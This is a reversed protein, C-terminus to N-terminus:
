GVTYDERQTPSVFLRKIALLFKDTGVSLVAFVSLAIPILIYIGPFLSLIFAVLSLILVGPVPNFRKMKKPIRAKIVNGGLGDVVALIAEGDLLFRVLYLPYHIQSIEGSIREVEFYNIRFGQPKLSSALVGWAKELAMQPDGVSDFVMWKESVLEEEFFHLKLVSSKTSIGFSGLETVDLAPIFYSIEKFTNGNVLKKPKRIIIVEGTDQVKENSIIEGGEEGIYLGGGKVKARYVPVYVLKADILRVSRKEEEGKTKSKVFERVAKLADARRTMKPFYFRKLGGGGVVIHSLGCHSCVVKRSGEVFSISGGCSPCIVAITFVMEASDVSGKQQLEL